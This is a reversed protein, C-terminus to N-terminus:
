IHWHKPKKKHKKKHHGYQAYVNVISDGHKGKHKKHKKRKKPSRYDKVVDYVARPDGNKKTGLLYKQLGELTLLEIMSDHIIDKNSKREDAM